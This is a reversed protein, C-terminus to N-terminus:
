GEGAGPDSPPTVDDEVEVGLANLLEDVTYGHIKVHRSNANVASMTGDKWKVTEFGAKNWARMQAAQIVSAKVKM